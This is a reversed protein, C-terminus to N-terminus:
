VVKPIWARIQEHHQKWALWASQAWEKVAQVHTEADQTKWVDVVTREGLLDPPTLWFFSAKHKAVSQMAKTARDLEFGREFVLCLSILHMAVSQISQPSPKGPHQVAYADVTLRHAKAYELDSYERALVEGFIAWCGPSSEVYRHVPGDDPPVLGKCGICPIQKPTKSNMM